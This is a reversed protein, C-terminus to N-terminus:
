GQDVANGGSAQAGSFPNIEGIKITGGQGGQAGSGTAGGSGSAGGEGCAALALASVLTLGVIPTLARARRM